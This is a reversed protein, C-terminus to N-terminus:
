SCSSTPHITPPIVVVVLPSPPSVVVAALGLKRPPRTTLSSPPLHRRHRRGLVRGGGSRANARLASRTSVAVDGGVPISLSLPSLSLPSLSSLPIRCPPSSPSSLPLCRLSVVALPASLSPPLRHLYVTPTGALPQPCHVAMGLAAYGGERAKRSPKKM